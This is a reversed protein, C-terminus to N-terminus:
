VVAPWAMLPPIITNAATPPIRRRKPGFPGFLGFWRNAATLTKIMNQRRKPQNGTLKPVLFQM